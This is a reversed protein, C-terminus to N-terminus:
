TWLIFLIIKLNREGGALRDEYLEGLCNCSGAARWNMRSRVGDLPLFPRRSRSELYHAFRRCFKILLNRRKDWQGSNHWFNISLGIVPFLNIWWSEFRSNSNPDAYEAAYPYALFPPSSFLISQKWFYVLLQNHNPSWCHRGCVNNTKLASTAGIQQVYHYWMITKIHIEM